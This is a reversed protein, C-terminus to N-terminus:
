KELDLIYDVAKVLGEKHGFCYSGAVLVEFGHEIAVKSTDGNIGGDIEIYYDLGNDRKYKSLYDGKSMMDSMFKQGGFGPEVSMVLVLEVKDLFPELVTVDTKPKVSIGAKYGKKHIKDIIELVEQDSSCAEYHFTILDTNTNDFYDVVEKPNVVMLHVDIFKDTLKTMQKLISPGFSINPVFNGDMVDYHIWEAKSENLLEIDKKLDTFDASLVSPAVIIM